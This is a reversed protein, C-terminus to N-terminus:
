PAFTNKIPESGARIASQNPLGNTNSGWVMPGNLDEHALRTAEIRRDLAFRM